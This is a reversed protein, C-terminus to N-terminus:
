SRLEAKWQTPTYKLCFNKLVTSKGSESQDLLLVKVERKAKKRDVRERHLEDDIQNNM